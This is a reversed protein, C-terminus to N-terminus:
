FYLNVMFTVLRCRISYPVRNIIELPTANRHDNDEVGCRAKKADIKECKSKRLSNYTFVSNFQIFVPITSDNIFM